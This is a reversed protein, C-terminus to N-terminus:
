DEYIFQGETAAALEGAGVFAPGAAEDATPREGADDGRLGSERDRRLEAVVRAVGAVCAIGDAWEEIGIERALDDGAIRALPEIGGGEDGRGGGATEGAVEAAVSIDAGAQGRQSKLTRLSVLSRSRRARWNRASIKLRSSRALKLVGLRIMKVGGVALFGVPTEPVAPATVEVVM